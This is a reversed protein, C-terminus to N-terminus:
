VRWFNAGFPPGQNPANPKIFRSFDGENKDFIIEFSVTKTSIQQYRYRNVGSFFCCDTTYNMKDLCHQTIVYRCIILYISNYSSLETRVSVYVIAYCFIIFIKHHTSSSVRKKIIKQSPPISFPLM